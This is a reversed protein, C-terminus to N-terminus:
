DSVQAKNRCAICPYIILTIRYKALKGRKEGQRIYFLNGLIFDVLHAASMIQLMNLVQDCSRTEGISWKDIWFQWVLGIDDAYDLLWLSGYEM